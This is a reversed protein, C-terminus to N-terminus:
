LLRAHYEALRAEIKSLLVEDKELQMKANSQKIVATMFTLFGVAGLFIWLCWFSALFVAGVIAILLVIGGSFYHGRTKELQRESNHVRREIEGRKASLKGIQTIIQERSPAANEQGEHEM